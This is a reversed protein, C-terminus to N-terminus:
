ESLLRELDSNSTLHDEIIEDNLPITASMKNLDVKDLESILDYQNINTQYSLHNELTITDLEESPQVLQNYVPLFLGFVLVAAVAVFLKNKQNYLPIVKKTDTPLQGMVKESFNDFYHEPVKFGSTIKPDKELNFKKM